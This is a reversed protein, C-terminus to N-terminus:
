GLIGLVQRLEGARRNEPDLSLAKDVAKRASAHDGRLFHDLGAAAHAAAEARRADLRAVALLRVIATHDPALASAQELLPVAKAANRSKLHRRAEDLLRVAEADAPPGEPLPTLSELPPSAVTASAPVAPPPPPPASVPALQRDRQAIVTAARDRIERAVPHDPQAALVEEAAARAEELNGHVIHEQATGVLAAVSRRAVEEDLYAALDRYRASEPALRAVRSAIKMALDLDGDAAYGLAMGSLQEVEQVRIAEEIEACQRQGAEHHPDLQLVRRCMTLAKQLQGDARARAIATVLESTDKQAALLRAATERVLRELDDRMEELSQYRDALPKALARAVVVELGPSYDTRPLATLDPEARMIHFMVQTLSDGDFPRRYALLEYAIAGVSFIDARHDVKQGEVQEPAMYHVTGLVLGSKTMTSSSLHAIGFDMIKVEGESTVRINAPKVDRHVIGARHAYALGECVQRLVDIKWEVSLPQRGQIIKELDQGEILEMAIYPQGRDEGLDYVTVINHHRLGGAAQAERLFRAKLEPTDALGPTMTKLAVTRHIVPDRAQYVTGMAGRGLVKEVEYKGITQV